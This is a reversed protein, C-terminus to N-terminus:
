LVKQCRDPSERNAQLLIYLALLLFRLTLTLGGVFYFPTLYLQKNLNYWRAENVPNLYHICYFISVNEYM